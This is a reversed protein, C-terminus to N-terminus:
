SSSKLCLPFLRHARHNLLNSVNSCLYKSNAMIGKLCVFVLFLKALMEHKRPVLLLKKFMIVYRCSKFGTPNPFVDDIQLVLTLKTSFDHFPCDNKRVPM